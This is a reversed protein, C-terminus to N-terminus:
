LPRIGCVIPLKSVQRHMYIFYFPLGLDGVVHLGLYWIAATLVGLGAGRMLFIGAVFPALIGVFGFTIPVFCNNDWGEGRIVLMVAVCIGSAVVSAAASGSLAFAVNRLRKRSMIM